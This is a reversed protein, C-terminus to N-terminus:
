GHDPRPNSNRHPNPEHGATAPGSGARVAPSAAPTDKGSAALSTEVQGGYQGPVLPDAPRSSAQGSAADTAAVSARTTTRASAQATARSQGLGTCTARGTTRGAPRVPPLPSTFADRLVEVGYLEVRSLDLWRDGIQVGRESIGNTSGEIVMMPTSRRGRARYGVRVEVGAPLGYLVAPLDGVSRDAAAGWYSDLVDGRDGAGHSGAKSGGPHQEEYRWLAWTIMHTGVCLLFMLLVGVWPALGLPGPPAWPTPYLLLVGTFPLWSALARITLLERQWLPRRGLSFARTLAPLEFAGYALSTITIWKWTAQALAADPDSAAAIAIDLVAAVMVGTVVFLWTLMLIPVRLVSGAQGALIVLLLGGCVMLLATVAQGERYADDAQIAAGAAGMLAFVAAFILLFRRPTM